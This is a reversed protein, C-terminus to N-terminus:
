ILKRALSRGGIHQDNIGEHIESLISNMEREEVCKLLPISFGRHYMKGNLIAYACVRRKVKTTEKKDNPLSGVNLFNFVPTMWSNVNIDCILFVESPKEISPKSLTEQILSQNGGKKKKTSM